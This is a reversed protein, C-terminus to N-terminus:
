CGTNAAQGVGPLASKPVETPVTRWYKWCCYCYCYCCTEDDAFRFFPPFAPPLPPAGLVVLDPPLFAVVAAAAAPPEGGSSTWCKVLCHIIM